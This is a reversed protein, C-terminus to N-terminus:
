AAIQSTKIKEWGERILKEWKILAKSRILRQKFILEKNELDKVEWFCIFGENHPNKQDKEFVVLKNEKINILKGEPYM